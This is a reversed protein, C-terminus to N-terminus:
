LIFRIGVSCGIHIQKIEADGRKKWLPIGSFMEVNKVNDTRIYHIGPGSFVELRPTIRYAPLIHYGANFINKKSISTEIKIENDIGFRSSCHIHAGLGGETVFTNGEAKHNYGYGVIGYTVGGGSRFSVMASGTESYSLSISKEGNKIFNLLAIPYDSKEAVNVLGAFQLGKVEKAVNALGALQVGKVEKAVNALGALQLGKGENGIYNFMGAMQFGAADRRIINALGSLTFAKENRSIGGLLHISVGNTYEPSHIGNTGLPYIFGFQFPAYKEGESQASVPIIRIICIIVALFIKKM